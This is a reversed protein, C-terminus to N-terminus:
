LQSISRRMFPCCSPITYSPINPGLRCANWPTLPMSLRCSSPLFLTCSCRNGEATRAEGISVHVDHDGAATVSYTVAYTGNDKDEVSAHTEHGGPGILKVRFDDGGSLRKNRVEDHAQELLSINCISWTCIGMCM